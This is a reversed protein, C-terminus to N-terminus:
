RTEETARASEIFELLQDLWYWYHCRACDRRAVDLEGCRRAAHVVSPKLGLEKWIARTRMM